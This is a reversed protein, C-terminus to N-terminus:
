PMQAEVAMAGLQGPASNGLLKTFAELSNTASTFRVVRLQVLPEDFAPIAQVSM